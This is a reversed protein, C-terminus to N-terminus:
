PKNIFSNDFHTFMRDYSSNAIAVDYHYEVQTGRRDVKRFGDLRPSDWVHYANEYIHWQIAAGSQKAPQLERLCEEAPAETDKGGMLVLLPTKIQSSVVSYPAISGGPFIQCVPYFVTVASFPAAGGVARIGQQNAALLGVIGGWSFGAMAVKNKSVFSLTRLQEAALLVDRVGRALTVGNKWSLCVSDVNRQTFSDIIYVVYGRQLANKAAIFVHDQLGGCTHLLVLAPFPGAGAPKYIQMASLTTEAEKIESSYSLDKALRANASPANMNHFSFTQAQSAHTCLWAIALVTLQRILLGGGVLYNKRNM